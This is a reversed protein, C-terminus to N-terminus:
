GLPELSNFFGRMSGGVIAPIGLVGGLIISLGPSQEFHTHAQAAKKRFVLAAGVLTAWVSLSIGVIAYMFAMVDGSTLHDM